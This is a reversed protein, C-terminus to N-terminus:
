TENCHCLILGSKKPFIIIDVAYSYILVVVLSAWQATMRLMGQDIQSYHYIVIGDVKLVWKRLSYERVFTMKRVSTFLGFALSM